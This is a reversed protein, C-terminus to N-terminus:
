HQAPKVVNPGSYGQGPIKGPKSGRMSPPVPGKAYGDTKKPANTGTSSSAKMRKSQLAM